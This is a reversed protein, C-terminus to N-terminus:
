SGTFGGAYLQPLDLMRKMKSEKLYRGIPRTKRKACGNKKQAVVRSITAPV